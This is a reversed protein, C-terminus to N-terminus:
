RWNGFLIFPAWFYPHEFKVFSGPVPRAANSARNADSSGSPGIQGRLMALQAAKLAHAKGLDPHARWEEYFRRMLVPTSDDSISWLSAIVAKAGQDLALGLFSDVEGGGAGEGPTATNCASLCILELHGFRNQEAGLIERLTITGGKGLLLESDLSKGSVVFHSAIHLVNSERDRIADLFTTRNFNQRELGYGPVVGHLGHLNDKVVAKLEAEAGRLASFRPPAGDPAAFAAMQPNGVPSTLSQLELPNYLTFELNEHEILYRRGDWIAALPIYRLVGDTSWIVHHAGSGELAEVVPQLVLKYIAEGRSKVDSGRNALASRFD